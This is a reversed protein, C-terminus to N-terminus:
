QMLPVCELEVELVGKEVNKLRLILEQIVKGDVLSIIGDSVLKNEKSAVLKGLQMSKGSKCTDAVKAATVLPQIDIEAEGMYDDTTFMDEDYVHVKLPPVDDPISLMFMEKWVHNLSNKIANTKVSQSGLSLVLYPDSTRMDRVALNSGKVKKIKILGIFEVMGVSSNCKKTSKSKSKRWSNLFSNSRSQSKQSSKKEFKKKDLDSSSHITSTSASPHPLSILEDAKMFKQLGYKRRIFDAREEISSDPKPKKFNDPISGEYNFNVSTNGGLAELADVEEDTWEDLQISKVQWMFM